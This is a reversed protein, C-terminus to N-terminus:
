RECRQFSLWGFALPMLVYVKLNKIIISIVCVRASVLVKKGELDAKTLDGVSKKAMTAVIRQGKTVPAAIRAAVAAGFSVAPAAGLSHKSLGTYGILRAPKAALRAPAPKSARAASLSVNANLTQAAM